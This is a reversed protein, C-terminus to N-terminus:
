QSPSFVLPVEPSVYLYADSSGVRGRVGDRYLFYDMSRRWAERDGFAALFKWPTLGRYTEEPFWWRHRIRAGDGLGGALSEMVRRNNDAHVLLVSGGAPSSAEPAPLSFGVGSRDRLYWAWPWSFPASINRM